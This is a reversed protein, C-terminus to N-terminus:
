LLTVFRLMKELSFFHPVSGRTSSMKNSLIFHLIDKRAVNEKFFCKRQRQWVHGLLCRNFQLGSTHLYQLCYFSHSVFSPTLNFTHLQDFQNFVISVLFSSSFSCPPHYIYFQYNTVVKIIIIIIITSFIIHFHCSQVQEIHKWATAWSLFSMPTNTHTHWDSYFLFFFLFVSLTGHIDTMSVNLYAPFFNSWWDYVFLNIMCDFIAKM